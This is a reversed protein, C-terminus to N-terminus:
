ILNKQILLASVIKIRTLSFILIQADIWFPAGGWTCTLSAWGSLRRMRPGETAACGGVGDNSGQAPIHAAHNPLTDSVWVDTGAENMTPPMVSFVPLQFWQLRSTLATSLTQPVRGQEPDM